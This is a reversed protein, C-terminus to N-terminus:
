NIPAHRASTGGDGLIIRDTGFRGGVPVDGGTELEKRLREIEADRDTLTSALSDYAALLRALQRSSFSGGSTMYSFESNAAIRMRSLEEKSLSPPTM